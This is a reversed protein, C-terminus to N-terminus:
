GMILLVYRRKRSSFDVPFYKNVIHVSFSTPFTKFNINFNTGYLQMISALLYSVTLLACLINQTRFPVIPVIAFYKFIFKAEITRGGVLRM